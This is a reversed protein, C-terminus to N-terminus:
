SISTNKFPVCPVGKCISNNPLDRIVASSAGVVCSSGVASSPNITVGLGVFSDAGISSRAGMLVGPCLVSCDGVTTNVGVSCHDEIQVCDGIVANPFINTFPGIYCGSGIKASKSIDCNKSIVTGLKLGHKITTDFYMRRAAINEAPTVIFKVDNTRSIGNKIYAEFSGLYPYQCINSKEAACYGSILVDHQAELIDCHM